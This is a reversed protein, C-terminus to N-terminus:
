VADDTEPQQAEDMANLEREAELLNEFDERHCNLYEAMEEILPLMEEDYIRGVEEIAEDHEKIQEELFEPDNSYFSFGLLYDKLEKVRRASDIFQAMKAMIEAQTYEM